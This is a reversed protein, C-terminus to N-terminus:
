GNELTSLFCMKRQFLTFTTKLNEQMRHASRQKNKVIRSKLDSLFFTNVVPDPFEVGGQILTLLVQHLDHPASIFFLLYCLTFKWFFLFPSFLSKFFCQFISSPNIEAEVVQRCNGTSLILLYRPDHCQTTQLEHLGCLSPGLCSILLPFLIFVVGCYLLGKITSM